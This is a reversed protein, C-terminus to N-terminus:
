MQTNIFNHEQENVVSMLDAGCQQCQRRAESQNVRDQLTNMVAYQADKWAAFGPQQSWDTKTDAEWTFWTATTCWSPNLKSYIICVFM